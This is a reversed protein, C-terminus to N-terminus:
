WPLVGRSDVEGEEALLIDELHQDLLEMLHLFELMERFHQCVLVVLVVLYQFFELAVLMVLVAVEAVLLDQIQLRLLDRVAVIEKDQLELEEQLVLLEVEVELDVLSDPVVQDVQEEV